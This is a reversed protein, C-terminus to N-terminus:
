GPCRNWDGPDLEGPPRGAHVAVLGQDNKGNDRAFETAVVLDCLGDGNVDGADIVAGYRLDRVGEYVGEENPLQGFVAFDPDSKWGTEGNLMVFVAGQNSQVPAADRDEGAIAGAAIDVFGDGNFDCVALGHGM